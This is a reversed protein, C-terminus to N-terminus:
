GTRPLAPFGGSHLRDELAARRAKKACIHHAPSMTDVPVRWWAAVAYSFPFWVCWLRKGCVRLPIRFLLISNTETRIFLYFLPINWLSIMNQDYIFNIIFFGFRFVNQRISLLRKENEFRRKFSSYCDRITALSWGCALPTIQKSQQLEKEKQRRSNFKMRRSLHQSKLTPISDYILPRNQGTNKDNIFFSVSTASCAHLHYANM